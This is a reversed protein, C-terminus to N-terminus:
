AYRCGILLWPVLTEKLRPIKSDVLFLLTLLRCAFQIRDDLARPYCLCTSQSFRAGRFKDIAQPTPFNWNEVFYKNVEDTVHKELPHCRVELYSRAPFSHITPSTHLFKPKPLVTFLLNYVLPYLKQEVFRSLLSFLEM